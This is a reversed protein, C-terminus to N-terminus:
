NGSPEDSLLSHLWEVHRCLGGIDPFLSAHHIGCRDLHFRIEHFMSSKIILKTLRKKYRRNEELPIFRRTKRDYGHVAFCARQATIRAVVSKPEYIRTVRQEFPSNRSDEMYEDEIYEDDRVTFVWVVGDTGEVPPREVAFWLAALPNWTWDLLRTAMGHHQAVALWEWDNQPIIRLYPAAERKFDALMAEEADLIDAKLKLRAIRPLLVHNERRQGRFLINEEQCKKQIFEVYDLL